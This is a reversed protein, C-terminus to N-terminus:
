EKEIISFVDSIITVTSISDSYTIHIGSDIYEVIEGFFFYKKRYKVEAWKSLMEFDKHTLHMEEFAWYSKLKTGQITIKNGDKSLSWDVYSEDSPTSSLWILKASYDISCYKKSTESKKHLFESGVM